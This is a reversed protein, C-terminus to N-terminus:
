KKERAFPIKYGVALRFTPGHNFHKYNSGSNAKEINLDYRNDFKIGWILQSRLFFNGGLKIDAGGGIRIWINTLDSVEISDGSNYKGPESLDIRTKSPSWDEGASTKPSLLLDLEIGFMPYIVAATGLPFPYRGLLSFDLRTGSAVQPSYKNNLTAGALAFDLEVYTADLFLYAGINNEALTVIDRAVSTGDYKTANGDASSSYFTDSYFAGLGFGFDVDVAYLATSAFVSLALFLSKKM